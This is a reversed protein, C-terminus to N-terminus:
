RDNWLCANVYCQDDCNVAESYCLSVAIQLCTQLQSLGEKVIQEEM